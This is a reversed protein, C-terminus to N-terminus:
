DPNEKSLKATTVLVLGYLDLLYNSYPLTVVDSVPRNAAAAIVPAAVVVNGIADVKRAALASYLNNADVDTFKVMAPDLGAQRATLVLATVYTVKDVKRPSGSSKPQSCAGTVASASVFTAASLIQRRSLM